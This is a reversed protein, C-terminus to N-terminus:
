PYWHKTPSLRVSMLVNLTPIQFSKHLNHSSKFNTRLTCHKTPLISERELPIKAFILLINMLVPKSSKLNIRLTDASPLPYAKVSCLM